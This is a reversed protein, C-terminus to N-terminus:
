LSNEERIKQLTSELTETSELTAQVKRTFQEYQNIGDEEKGKMIGVLGEVEQKITFLRIEMQSKFQAQQDEKEKWQISIEQKLGEQSHKIGREIVELQNELKNM